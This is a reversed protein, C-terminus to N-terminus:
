LGDMARSWGAPDSTDVLRLTGRLEDLSGIGTAFMSIRLAEVVEFAADHARAAGEAAARLFPGAMGVLDAGLALAKAADIGDAIGGSAILVANPAARRAAVLAAATPIGWSSFLSAVRRRRPDSIRHKEVESWSTGGAGAVDVAAVGAGLLARVM